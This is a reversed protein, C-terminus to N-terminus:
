AAEAADEEYDDDSDFEEEEDIEDDITVEGETLEGEVVDEEEYILAFIQNYTEELCEHITESQVSEMIATLSELVRDVEDSGIEEEIEEYEASAEIGADEVEESEDYTPDFDDSM